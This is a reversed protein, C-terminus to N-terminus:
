SSGSLGVRGRHGGLFLGPDQPQVSIWDSRFLDPHSGSGRWEINKLQLSGNATWSIDGVTLHDGRWVAATSLGGRILMCSLPRAFVWLLGAVLLLFLTLWATPTGSVAPPHQLEQETSVRMTM